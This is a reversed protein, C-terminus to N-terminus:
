KELSFKRIPKNTPKLDLKGQCEDINHWTLAYLNCKGGPNMFMGERTKRILDADLLAQVANALTEKSKFGWRKMVSFAATLDGNNKGRYQYILANLLRIANPPLNRYDDSEM